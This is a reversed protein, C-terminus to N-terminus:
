HHFYQPPSCFAPPQPPLTPLESAPAPLVLPCSPKMIACTPSSGRDCLTHPAAPLSSSCLDPLPSAALPGQSLVTCLCFHQGGGVALIVKFHCSSLCLPLFFGWCRLPFNKDRFFLFHASNYEHAFWSLVTWFMFSLLGCPAHPRGEWPLGASAGLMSSPIPTIQSLAQSYLLQILM